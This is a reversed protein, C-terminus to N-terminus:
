WAGPTLELTVNGMTFGNWEALPVLGAGALMHHLLITCHCPLKVSTAVGSLMCAMGNVLANGYPSSQWASLVQCACALM